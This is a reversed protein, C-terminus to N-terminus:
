IVEPPALEGLDMIVRALVTRVGIAQMGAITARPLDLGRNLFQHDVLTTVGTRLAELSGLRAGLECDEATLARGCFYICRLWEIFPLHEYVGRILTQFLHTHANVIGPMVVHGTADIRRDAGQVELPLSSVASIAGDVIEIWGPDVIENSENMTLVTANEVLLRM